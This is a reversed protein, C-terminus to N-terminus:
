PVNANEQLTSNRGAFADERDVLLTREIRSVLVTLLYGVAGAVGMYILIHDIRLEERAENLLNGIGSGSTLMYEAGLTALWAHILALHLGTFISPLAAPLVIHRVLQARRYALSRGLEIWAVPVSRIGEHCNLFVPFFTAIAILAVKAAEGLGLWAMILPIWAFLSINKLTQLLPDFTLRMGGSLGLVMGAFLGFGAGLSLGAAARALSTALAAWLSGDGLIQLAERSVEAPSVFLASRVGGSFDAAAWLALGMLPLAIARFWKGAAATM